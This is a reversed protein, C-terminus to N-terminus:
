RIIKRGYIAEQRVIYPEQDTVGHEIEGHCNHCVLICKYMEQRLSELSRTAGGRLQFSKLKPNVHHFALSGLHRNYGCVLCAGGAESILAATTNRRRDVVRQRVCKQCALTSSKGKPIFWATLGHKDCLMTVHGLSKAEGMAAAYKDEYFCPYRTRLKFQKARSRVAYISVMEARAVASASGEQRLLALFEAEPMEEIRKIRDRVPDRQSRPLVSMSSFWYSVTSKSRGYSTAIEGITAGAVVLADLEEASPKPKKM